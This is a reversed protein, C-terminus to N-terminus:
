LISLSGDFAITSLIYTGDPCMTPNSAGGRAYISRATQPIVRVFVQGSSYFITKRQQETSQLWSPDNIDVVWNDSLSYKVVDTDQLDFIHLFTFASEANKQTHFLCGTDADCNGSKLNINYDFFVQDSYLLIFIQLM